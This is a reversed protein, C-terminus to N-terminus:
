KVRKINILHLSKARLRTPRFLSSSFPAYGIGYRAQVIGTIIGKMNYPASEYALMTGATWQAGMFM